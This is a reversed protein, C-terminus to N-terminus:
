PKKFSKSIECSFTIAQERVLMKTPKLHSGGQFFYPLSHVSVIIFHSLLNPLDGLLQGYTLTETVHFYPPTISSLVGEQPSTTSINSNVINKIFPIM